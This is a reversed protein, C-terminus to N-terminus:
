DNLVEISWGRASIDRFTEWPCNPHCVQRHVEIVVDKPWYSHSARQWKSTIHMPVRRILAKRLAREREDKERNIFKIRDRIDNSWEIPINGAHHIHTFYGRWGMLIMFWNQLSDWFREM